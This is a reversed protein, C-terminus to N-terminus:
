ARSDGNRESILPTEAQSLEFFFPMAWWVLGWLFFVVTLIVQLVFTVRGFHWIDLEEFATKPNDCWSRSKFLEYYGCFAVIGFAMALMMMAFGHMLFLWDPLGDVLGWKITRQGREGRRPPKKARRMQKQLSQFGKKVPVLLLVALCGTALIVSALVYIWVNTDWVVHVKPNSAHCSHVVEYDKVLFYIGVGDYIGTLVAAGINLAAM